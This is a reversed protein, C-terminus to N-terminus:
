DVLAAFSIGTSSHPTASSSNSPPGPVSGEGVSAVGSLRSLYALLNRAEEENAKLEPMLSTTERVLEAVEQRRLLHIKGDLSQLQLDYNSENRVFGRVA